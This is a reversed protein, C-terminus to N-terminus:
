GIDLLTAPDTRGGASQFEAAVAERLEADGLFDVATLALGIAGDVTGRDGEESAAWRAFEPSHISVAPPAIALTPHIAPVRVSVNGLDTSGTLEGPVLGPPLVRRGRETMNQAYRGALTHNHRVPLYVPCPDWDIDVDTGTSAAAAEFVAGARECLEALTRPEASRLYFTAAAREPVINPKQGGDTIIGHVRDTPLIHQRLQGIGLYAAVVADLANRGLFPMAAAHASLGHYTVNVQRVGLWPQAATEFGAPHVMVVADVEEFGGARAILEKGGGGEEAPCGILEVSGAVEGVVTAAALFAGVASACIINHGCAHGIGPLADYEALIAVRPRGRGAQARLATELGYAGVEADGGHDGVVRAVADVAHHEAFGLEPHAHVDRSLGVLDAALGEVADTVAERLEVAAGTHASALPEAEAVDHAIREALRELYGPYPPTPSSM